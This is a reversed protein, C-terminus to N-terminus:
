IQKQVNKIDKQSPKKTLQDFEQDSINFNLYDKHSTHDVIMMPHKQKLKTQVSAIIAKIENASNKQLLL